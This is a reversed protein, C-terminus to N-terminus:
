NKKILNSFVKPEISVVILFVAIIVAKQTVGPFILGMRKVVVIGWFGKCANWENWLQRVKVSSSMAEEEEEEEEKKKKIL